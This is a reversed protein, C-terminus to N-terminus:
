GDQQKDHEGADIFGSGQGRAARIGQRPRVTLRVEGDSWRFDFKEM